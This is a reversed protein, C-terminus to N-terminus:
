ILKIENVIKKLEDLGLFDKWLFSITSHTYIIEKISDPFFQVSKNINEYENSYEEIYKTCKIMQEKNESIM